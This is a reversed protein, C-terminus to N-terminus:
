LSHWLCCRLGRFQLHHEPLLIYSASPQALYGLPAGLLLFFFISLTSNFVNSSRFRTWGDSMLEGTGRESTMWGRIRSAEASPLFAIEVSDELSDSYCDYVAGLNVTTFISLDFRRHKGLNWVCINHYQELTLLDIFTTITEASASLSHVGSLCPSTPSRWDLWLNLGPTLEVCLRGTSRRIWSTHEFTWLERQFASLIYNSAETFDQNCYAYIYVTLFHSDRHRDLVEQLPILDDNFLMAHLGNSSAASCIQVINPHSTTHTLFWHPSFMRMFSAASVYVECDRPAMSRVEEADNGQYIAVTVRTRRGDIRAKGAHMRRVCARERPHRNVVGTFEDVRIQRRLDIDGMPIMRFDSPLRQAAAYNKTVNTFTGGMVTFQQSHSFMGSPSDSDCTSPRIFEPTPNPQDDM